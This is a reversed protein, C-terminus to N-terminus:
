TKTFQKTSKALGKLIKAPTLTADEKRLEEIKAFIHEAGFMDSYYLPRGRIRQGVM